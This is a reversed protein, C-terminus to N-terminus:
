KEYLYKILAAVGLVHLLADLFRYSRDILINHLDFWGHQPATSVSLAFILGLVLLVVTLHFVKM